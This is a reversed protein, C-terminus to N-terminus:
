RRGRPHTPPLDDQTGSKTGSKPLTGTSSSANSGVGQGGGSSGTGGGRPHMPPLEDDSEDMEDFQHQLGEYYEGNVLKTEVEEVKEMIASTIDDLALTVQELWESEGGAAVMSPDDESYMDDFYKRIKDEFEGLATEVGAAVGGYEEAENVWIGEPQGFPKAMIAEKILSRLMARDLKITKKM